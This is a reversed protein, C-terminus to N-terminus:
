TSSHDAEPSDKTGVANVNATIRKGLEDHIDTGEVLCGMALEIFGPVRILDVNGLEFTYEESHIEMYSLLIGVCTIDVTYWEKKGTVRYISLLNHLEDEVKAAGAKEHFHGTGIIDFRLEGGSQNKLQSMRNKADSAHGVKIGVYDGTDIKSVYCLYVSYNM